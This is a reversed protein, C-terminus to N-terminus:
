VPIQTIQLTFESLGLSQPKGSYPEPNFHKRGKTKKLARDIKQSLKRFVSKSNFHLFREGYKLINWACGHNAKMFCKEPLDGFPITEPNQSVFLVEASPVARIAAYKKVALKDQMLTLLPNPYYKMLWRIKAALTLNDPLLM